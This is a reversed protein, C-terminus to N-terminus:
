NASFRTLWPSSTPVQKSDLSQRSDFRRSPQRQQKEGFGKAASVITADSRLERSELLM